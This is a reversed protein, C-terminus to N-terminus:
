LGGWLEGPVSTRPLVPGLPQLGGATTVITAPARVKPHGRVACNLAAAYGAVVVRDILPTLFKPAM